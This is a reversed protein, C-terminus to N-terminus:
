TVTMFNTTSCTLLSPPSPSRQLWGSLKKKRQPRYRRYARKFLTHSASKLKRGNTACAIKNITTGMKPAMDDGFSM